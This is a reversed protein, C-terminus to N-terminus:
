TRISRAGSNALATMVGVLSRKGRPESKKDPSWGSGHSDAQAVIASMVIRDRNGIPPDSASGAQPGDSTTVDGIQKRTGARADTLGVGPLAGTPQSVAVIMDMGDKQEVCPADEYM